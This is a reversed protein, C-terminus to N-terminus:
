VELTTPLTLHTYSVPAIHFDLHGDQAGRGQCGKHDSHVYLMMSRFQGRLEPVIHFDLHIDQAAQGQCDKHDSHVYLMM